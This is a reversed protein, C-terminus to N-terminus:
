EVRWSGISSFLTTPNLLRPQAEEVQGALHVKVTTAIVMHRDLQWLPVFPVTENFQRHADAALVSLKAFDTHLRCEALTRALRDDAEGPNSEKSLYGLYNRGGPGTAAPSPDLFSGLGLPYWDDPYDFPLYELDYQPQEEM